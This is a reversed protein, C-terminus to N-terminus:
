LEGSFARRLLAGPLQNIADLQEALTQRLREVSAMQASLRAAVRQQVSLPPVPILLPSLDQQNIQPVTNGSQLSALDWGEFWLHLYSTLVGGSGLPQIGMLNPDLVAPAKLIRKRNTAIAGGRKPFVVAGAELVRAGALRRSTYLAGGSLWPGDCFEGNLDSVKLCYVRDENGAENPPPLTNGGIISCVDGLRKRQWQQAEPSNFVAPLYAAPLYEAAQLQAEASRRAREVAAVKESLVGAIRKQEALPPLPMDLALLKDRQCGISRDMPQLHRRFGSTAM